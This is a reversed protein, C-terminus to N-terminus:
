EKGEEPHFFNVLEDWTEKEDQTLCQNGLHSLIAMAAVESDTMIKPCEKVELEFWTQSM